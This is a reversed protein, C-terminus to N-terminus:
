SWQKPRNKAIDHTARMQYLTDYGNHQKPCFNQTLKNLSRFMLDEVRYHGADYRDLEWAITPQLIFGDEAEPTNMLHHSIARVVTESFYAEWNTYVSGIGMQGDPDYQVAKYVCTSHALIRKAREDRKFFANIIPHSLEHALLTQAEVRNASPGLIVNYHNDTYISTVGSGTPMLPNITVYTVRLDKNYPLPLYKQVRRAIDRIDDSAIQSKKWAPAIRKWFSDMHGTIWAQQLIQSLTARDKSTWTESLGVIAGDPNPVFSPPPGVMQVILANFNTIAMAHQLLFTLADERIVVPWQAVQQQVQDKFNYDQATAPPSPCDLLLSHLISQQEPTAVSNAACIFNGFAFLIKEPAQETPKDYQEANVGLNAAYLKPAHLFLALLVLKGFWKAAKQPYTMGFM